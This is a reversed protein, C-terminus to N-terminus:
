TNQIDFKNAVAFYSGNTTNPVYSSYDSPVKSGDVANYYLFLHKRVDLESVRVARMSTSNSYYSFKNTGYPTILATLYNNTDYQMSSSLNIVDTINTLRDSSDYQLVNTL